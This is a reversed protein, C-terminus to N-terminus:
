DTRTVRKVMMVVEHKKAESVAIVDIGRQRLRGEGIWKKNLESEWNTM